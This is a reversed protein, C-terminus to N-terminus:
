STAVWWTVVDAGALLDWNMRGHPERTCIGLCGPHCSHLFGGAGEGGLDSNPCSHLSNLYSGGSRHDCQFFPCSSTHFCGQAEGAKGTGKRTRGQQGEQNDRQPPCSCGLEPGM